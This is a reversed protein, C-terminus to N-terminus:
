AGRRTGASRTGLSPRPTSSCVYLTGGVGSVHIRVRPADRPAPWPPPEIIESAFAGGGDVEVAVGPPILVRVTGFLNHIALEAQPAALRAERLDLNITGFFARWSSHPPLEWAGSRALRSFVARYRAPAGDAHAPPLSPLDATIAVLERDTRATQALGVREGFEELTLRGEVAADRLVAISDEREADSALIAPPDPRDDV